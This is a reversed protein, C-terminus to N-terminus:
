LCAANKKCPGKGYIIGTATSASFLLDLLHSKRCLMEERSETFRNLFSDDVHLDLESVLRIPLPMREQTTHTWGDANSQAFLAYYALDAVSANHFSSDYFTFRQDDGRPKAARIMSTTANFDVGCNYLYTAM